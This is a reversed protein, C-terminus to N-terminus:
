RDADFLLLAFLLFYDQQAPYFLEQAKRPAICAIKRHQTGPFDREIATIVNVRGLADYSLIRADFVKGGLIIGRPAEGTDM